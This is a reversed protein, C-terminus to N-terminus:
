TGLAVILTQGNYCVRDGSRLKRGKRTEAAGNLEVLGNVVALKAEGGSGFIGAFKLFRALEIPEERILVTRPPPETPM